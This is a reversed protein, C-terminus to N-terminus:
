RSGAARGRRREKGFVEQVTAVTMAPKRSAAGTKKDRTLPTKAEVPKESGSM